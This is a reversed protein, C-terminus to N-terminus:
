THKIKLRSTLALENHIYFKVPIKYDPLKGRCYTIIDNKNLKQPHEIYINAVLKKGLIIDDESYVKVSIVGEMELIINEVEQPDVKEGGINVREENRGITKIYGEKNKEVKDNTCIWENEIIINGEMFCVISDTKKLWLIGDRVIYNEGEIGPKFYVSGEISYTRINTTETTGFAQYIQTNPLTKKLGKLLKEDTREGGLNLIELGQLKNINDSLMVLRIFTPTCALLNIKHEEITNCVTNISDDPPIIITGGPIIISLMTEIGSIHEPSFVLISNFRRHLKIYKQAIKNFNHLVIKRGGQTGSTELILGPEGQSVFVELNSNKTKTNNVIITKDKYIADIWDQKPDSAIYPFVIHNKYLLAFFDIWYDISKSAKIAVVRPMGQEEFVQAQHNIKECFQIYDIEKNGFVLVPGQHNFMKLIDM